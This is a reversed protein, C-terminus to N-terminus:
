RTWLLGSDSGIRLWMFGIWCELVVERLYVKIKDDWGRRLKRTTEERWAKWYFNRVWKEDGWHGVWRMRRSNIIRNKFIFWTKLSRPKIGPLSLSKTKAVVDPAWGDGQEIPALTLFVKLIVEERGSVTNSTREDNARTQQVSTETFCEAVSNYAHKQTNTETFCEAVSNYAHKQTNTQTERSSTDSVSPAWPVHPRRGTIQWGREKVQWTMQGLGARGM